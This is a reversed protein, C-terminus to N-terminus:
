MNAGKGGRVHGQQKNKWLRTELLGHYNRVLVAAEVTIYM